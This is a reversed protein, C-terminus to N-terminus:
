PIQLQLKQELHTLLSRTDSYIVDIRQQDVDSPFNMHSVINRPLRLQEIRGIWEDIDPIAVSFLNSNARLIENLHRLQLYYIDHRGPRGHWPRKVYDGKFREVDKKITQDVALNWWDPGIQVLLVSNIIVRFINEVFYIKWYVRRGVFRGSADVLGSGFPVERFDFAKPM